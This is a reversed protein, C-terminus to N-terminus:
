QCRWQKKKIILLEGHEQYTTPVIGQVEMEKILDNGKMVEYFFSVFNTELEKYYIEDKSIQIIAQQM